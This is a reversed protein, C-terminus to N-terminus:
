SPRDEFVSGLFISRRRNILEVTAAEMRRKVERGLARIVAPDDAADPGHERAVHLPELFLTHWKSPLPIPTTVPIFPWQTFRKWWGWDLRGLIPFIEASGITVFPVIPVQHRLAFAICDNRWSPGIRHARSYMTFAGRIGEPYVALLEGSQLVRHANVHSAIIGGLKSMLNFLCPFRLGVGPHILFRPVRGTGQVVSLLTMVGDFPMFGRHMGVLVAGGATPIHDFGRAEVRWYRRHLLGLGGRWCADIYGRDMGFADFRDSAGEDSGPAAVAVLRRARRVADASTDRAHFGLHRAARDGCATLHYRIFQAQRSSAAHGLRSGFFRLVRHMTWPVPLARRGALRLAVRLPIPAAPVINFTGSAAHAVAREIARAFDAPTLLQLTPDYGAVTLAPRSAFLINFFDTAEAVLIPAARLITVHEAGFAAIAKTELEHWSRAVPQVSRATPSTETALGAHHPTAGYVATSSVLVLHRVGAHRGADFLKTAAALDPELDPLRRPPPSYVVADVVSACAGPSLSAPPDMALTVHWSPPLHRSLERALPSPPLIVAARRQRAADVTVCTFARDAVLTM